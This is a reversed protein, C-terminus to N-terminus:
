IANICLLYFIFNNGNLEEMLQAIEASIGSNEAEVAHKPKKKKQISRKQLNGRGVGDSDGAGADASPQAQNNDDDDENEEEAIYSRSLESVSDLINRVM